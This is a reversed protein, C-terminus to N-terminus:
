SPVQDGVLARHIIALIKTVTSRSVKFTTASIINRAGFEADILKAATIAQKKTLLETHSPPISLGCTTQTIVWHHPKDIKRHVAWSGFVDADILLPGGVTAIEIKASM